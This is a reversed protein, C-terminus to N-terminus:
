KPTYATDEELLLLTTDDNLLQLPEPFIPLSDTNNRNSVDVPLPLSDINNKSSAPLDIPTDSIEQKVMNKVANSKKAPASKLAPVTKDHLTLILHEDKIKCRIRDEFLFSLIESIKKNRFSATVPKLGETISADYAFRLYTQKEIQKLVKSVPMNAVELTIRKELPPPLSNQLNEQQIFFVFLCIVLATKM